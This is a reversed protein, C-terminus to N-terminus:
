ELPRSLDYVPAPQASPPPHETRDGGIERGNEQMELTKQDIKDPKESAGVGFVRKLGDVTNSFGRKMSSGLAEMANESRNPRGMEVRYQENSLYVPSRSSVSLNSQREVGKMFRVFERRFGLYQYPQSTDGASLVAREAGKASYGNMLAFLEPHERRIKDMMTMDDTKHVEEMLAKRAASDRLVQPTEIVRVRQEKRDYLAILPGSTDSPMEIGKIRVQAGAEISSGLTLERGANCSFAGLVEQDQPGLVVPGGYLRRSTFNSILKLDEIRPQAAAAKDFDAAGARRSASKFQKQAPAKATFLEPNWQAEDNLRQINGAHIEQAEQRYKQVFDGLKPVDKSEVKLLLKSYDGALGGQIHMRKDVLVAFGPDLDRIEAWPRGPKDKLAKRIAVTDIKEVTFIMSDKDIGAVYREGNDDQFIMFGQQYLPNGMGRKQFDPYAKALNYDDYAQAIDTSNYAHGGSTIELSTLGPKWVPVSGRDYSEVYAPAGGEQTKHLAAAYTSVKDAFMEAAKDPDSIKGAAALADSMADEFHERYARDG